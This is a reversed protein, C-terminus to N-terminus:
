EGRKLDRFGGVAGGCAWLGFAAVGLSIAARLVDLGAPGFPMWVLTTTAVFTLAFCALAGWKPALETKRKWGM